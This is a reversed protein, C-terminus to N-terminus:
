QGLEGARKKLTEMSEDTFGVSRHIQFALCNNIAKAVVVLGLGIAAGCTVKSNKSALLEQLRVETENINM